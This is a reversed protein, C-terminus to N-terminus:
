LGYLWSKLWWEEALVTFDKFNIVGDGNIDARTNCDAVALWDGTFISVDRLDVQGSDDIDGALLEVEYCNGGQWDSCDLWGEAFFVFDRFNVFGDQFLDYKENPGEVLWQGALMKLDLMDVYCDYDFDEPLYGFGGCYTDFKVFDWRVLYESFYIGGVKVKMALSLTHSNIDKYTRFDNADIEVQGLYEGNEDLELGNSDWIDNGDILVLASHTSPNWGGGAITGLKLDFIIQNVDMLYVQQSVVAMDGDALPEFIASSLTLSYGDGYGHTSWDSDVWGNFKGEPWNVDCWYKPSEAKIDPISSGNNEFSGNRVFSVGGQALNGFLLAVMVVGIVIVKKM